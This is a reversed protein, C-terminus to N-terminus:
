DAPHVTFGQVQGRIRGVLTGFRGLPCSLLEALPSSNGHRTSSLPSPNVPHHVM